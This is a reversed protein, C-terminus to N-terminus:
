FDKMYCCGLTRCIEHHKLDWNMKVPWFGLFNAAAVTSFEVGHCLVGNETGITSAWNNAQMTWDWIRLQRTRGWNRLEITPVWRVVGHDYRLKEVGHNSVLEIKKWLRGFEWGMEEPCSRMWVGAENGTHPKNHCHHNDYGKHTLTFQVLQSCM